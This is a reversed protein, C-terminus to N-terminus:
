VKKFIREAEKETVDFSKIREFVEQPTEACGKFIMYKYDKESLKKYRGDGNKYVLCSVRELCSATIIVHNLYKTSNIDSTFCKLLSLIASSGSKILENKIM